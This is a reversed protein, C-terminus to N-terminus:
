KLVLVKASFKARIYANGLLKQAKIKKWTGTADTQLETIVDGGLVAAEYKMKSIVDEMSQRRETTVIVVGIEEYPQDVTELYKVDNLSKKPPYFDQSTEKSDIAYFSCGSISIFLCLLLIIDRM